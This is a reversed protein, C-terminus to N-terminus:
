TQLYWLIYLDIKVREWLGLKNGWAYASLWIPNIYSIELSFFSFSERMSCSVRHGLNSKKIVQSWWMGKGASILQDVKSNAIMSMVGKSGHAKFM